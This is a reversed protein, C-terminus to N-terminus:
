ANNSEEQHAKAFIRAAGTGASAKDFSETRFASSIALKKIVRRLKVASVPTAASEANPSPPHEDPSPAFPPTAAPPLSAFSPTVNEVYVSARSSIPLASAHSTRTPSIMPGGDIPKDCNM